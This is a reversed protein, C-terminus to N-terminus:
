RVIKEGLTMAEVLEDAIEGLAALEALGVGLGFDMAQSSAELFIIL